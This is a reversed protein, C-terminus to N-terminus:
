ETVWTFVAFQCKRKKITLWTDRVRRLVPELHQLLLEWTPSFAIIDDIYASAYDGLGDLLKDVIRQFTAPAGQLGFLM